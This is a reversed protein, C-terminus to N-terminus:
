RPSRRRQFFSIGLLCAGAFLGLGDTWDSKGAVSCCGAVPQKFFEAGSLGGPGESGCGKEASDPSSSSRAICVLCTSVPGADDLAAADGDYMTCGPDYSAATTQCTGTSISDPGANSCSSGVTASAECANDALAGRSALTTAVALAAGLYLKTLRAHAV